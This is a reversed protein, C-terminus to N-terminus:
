ELVVVALVVFGVVEIELVDSVCLCSELRSLCVAAFDLSAPLLRASSDGSFEVNVTTM